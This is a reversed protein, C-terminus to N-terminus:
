SRRSASTRRTTIKKGSLTNAWALRARPRGSVHKRDALKGNIYVRMENFGYTAVVHQWEGPVLTGADLTDVGALYFRLTGNLVQLFYGAKQWSGKCVLVPMGKLDDLKVWVSVSLAHGPDWQPQAELEAWGRGGLAIGRETVKALGALFQEDKFSLQLVPSLPETSSIIGVKKSPPGTRGDAAVAAVTYTYPQGPDVQDSIQLFHGYDADVFTEEIVKHSRDYKLIDYQAATPEDSEWGVINRNARSTV